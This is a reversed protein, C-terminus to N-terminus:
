KAKLEIANGSKKVTGRSGKTKEILHPSVNWAGGDETIVTVTKKNYKAVIGVIEEQGRRRFCVKEGISFEMMEAHARMSDLFKLREVIRHNLEILEAETLNDIDVRM